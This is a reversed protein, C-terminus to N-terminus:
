VMLEAYGDLIVVHPKIIRDNGIRNNRRRSHWVEMDGEKDIFSSLIEVIHINDDIIGVRIKRGNGIGGKNQNVVM